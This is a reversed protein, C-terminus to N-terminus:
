RGNTEGEIIEFISDFTTEVPINYRRLHDNNRFTKESHCNACYTKINSKNKNNKNGDKYIVDLQCKDEPVFNCNECKNKKHILYGYNTNYFM